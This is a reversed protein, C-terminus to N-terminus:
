VFLGRFDLLWLPEMVKEDFEATTFDFQPWKTWVAAWGALWADLWGGFGARRKSEM